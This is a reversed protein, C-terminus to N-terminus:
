HIKYSEKRAEKKGRAFPVLQGTPAAGALAEEHDSQESSSSSGSFGGGAFPTDASYDLRAMINPSMYKALQPFSEPALSRVTRIAEVASDEAHQLTIM